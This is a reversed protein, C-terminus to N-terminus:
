FFNEQRAPALIEGLHPMKQYDKWRVKSAEMWVFLLWILITPLCIGKETHIWIFQIWVFTSAIFFIWNLPILFLCILDSTIAICIFLFSFALGKYKYSDFVSRVFLWFPWLYEFRCSFFLDVTKKKVESTDLVQRLEALYDCSIVFSWILVIKLYFFLASSCLSFQSITSGESNEESGQNYVLKEV